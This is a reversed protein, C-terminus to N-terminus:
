HLEGDLKLTQTVASQARQLGTSVSVQGSEMASIQQSIDTIVNAIDPIPPLAQANSAEKEMTGLYPLEKLYTPNTATSIRGPPPAGAKIFANVNQKSLIYMLFEWAAAKKKSASPISILWGYLLNSEPYPGIKDQPMPAAAFKGVTKSMSPNALDSYWGSNEIMQGVNLQEYATVQGAGAGADGDVALLPTQKALQIYTQMTKEAVPSTLLPENTAPNLLRGGNEYLMAAWYKASQQAGYDFASGYNGHGALKVSDQQYQQWTTPPHTISAAKYMDTRYWLVFPETSLALGYTTGRYEQYQQIQEPFDSLEYSPTDKLM